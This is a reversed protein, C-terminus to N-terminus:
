PRASTSTSPARLGSGGRAPADLLNRGVTGGANAVVRDLGRARGRGRRRRRDARGRRDRGGGPGCYAGRARGRRGAADLEDAGRALLGVACARPRSRTRSPWASGRSAGSVVARAGHLGLDMPGSGLWRRTGPDYTRHLRSRSAPRAGRREAERPCGRWARAWVPSRSRARSSPTRAASRSQPQTPGSSM